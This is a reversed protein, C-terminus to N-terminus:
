APLILRLQCMINENLIMHNKVDCCTSLSFNLRLWGPASLPSQPSKEPSSPYKTQINSILSQSCWVVTFYHCTEMRPWSQETKNCSPHCSQNDVREHGLSFALFVSWSGWVHNMNELLGVNYWLRIHVGVSNSCSLLAVIIWHKWNWMSTLVNPLKWINSCISQSPQSDHHSRAVFLWQRKPSLNEFHTIWFRTLDLGEYKGQDYVLQVQTKNEM